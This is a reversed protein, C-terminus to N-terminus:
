NSNASFLGLLNEKRSGMSSFRYDEDLLISEKNEISNFFDSFFIEKSSNLVYNRSGKKLLLQFSDNKFNAGIVSFGNIEKTVHQGGVVVPEGDESHLRDIADLELAYNGETFETSDFLFRAEAGDLVVRKELLEFCCRRATGQM